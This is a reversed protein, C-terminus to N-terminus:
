FEGGVHDPVYYPSKKREKEREDCRRLAEDEKKWEEIKKENKAKWEEHKRDKKEQKREEKKEKARYEANFKESREKAERKEREKWLKEDAEREEKTTIVYELVSLAAGLITGKGEKGDEGDKSMGPTDHQRHPNHATFNAINLKSYACNTTTPSTLSPVHNVLDM